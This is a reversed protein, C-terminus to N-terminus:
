FRFSLQQPNYGVSGEVRDRLQAKKENIIARVGVRHLPLDNEYLVEAAALLDNIAEEIGHVTKPSIWPPGMCLSDILARTTVQSVKNGGDSLAALYESTFDM